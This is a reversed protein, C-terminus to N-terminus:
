TAQCRPCYRAHPSHPSHVRQARIAREGRRVVVSAWHWRAITVIFGGQTYSPTPAGVQLWFRSHTQLRTSSTPQLGSPRAGIADFAAALLASTILICVAVTASDRADRSRRDIRAWLHEQLLIKRLM